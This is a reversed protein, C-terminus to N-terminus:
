LSTDVGLTLVWTQTSTSEVRFAPDDIVVWHASAWRSPGAIRESLTM